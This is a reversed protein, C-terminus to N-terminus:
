HLAPFPQVTKMRARHVGELCRMIWLEYPILTTKYRHRQKESLRTTGSDIREVPWKQAHHKPFLKALLTIALGVCLRSRQSAIVTTQIYGARELQRLYRQVTRQCRNLARALYSVTIDATRTERDRRYTYGTLILACRRAGDCLNPDRAIRESLEPTYAATERMPKPPARHAPLHAARPSQARRVPDSPITEIIERRGNREIRRKLHDHLDAIDYM